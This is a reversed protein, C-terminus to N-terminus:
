WLILMRGDFPNSTWDFEPVAVDAYGDGNIDRLASYGFGFSGWPSPLEYVVAAIDAVDVTPQVLTALRDGDVLYIRAPATATASRGVVLDGANSGLISMHSSSGSFGTGVAFRAFANVGEATIDSISAITSGFPGSADTGTTILVQGTASRPVPLVVAPKNVGQLGRLVSFPYQGLRNGTLGVRRFLANSATKQETPLLSGFLYCEGKNSEFFPGSALVCANYGCYGSLGYLHYGLAAAGSTADGVISSTSTAHSLPVTTSPELGGAKGYVIAVHGINTEAFPVGIAFDELGDGNVDGLRSLSTGLGYLGPSGVTDVRVVADSDEQTIAEPWQPRGYFVYVTGSNDFPAGVALDGIGDGNVDGIMSVAAGFQVTSGSITTTPDQGFGTSSGFWIYVRTGNRSGVVLDSFGDGNLDSSGDFWYGFREDTVKSLLDVRM